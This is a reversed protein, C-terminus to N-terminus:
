LQKVPTSLRLSHFHPYGTAIIARLQRSLTPAGRKSGQDLPPIKQGKICLYKGYPGEVRTRAEPQGGRNM